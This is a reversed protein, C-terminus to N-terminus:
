WVRSKRDATKTRYKEKGQNSWKKAMGMGGREQKSPGKGGSRATKLTKCRDGLIVSVKVLLWKKKQWGTKAANL